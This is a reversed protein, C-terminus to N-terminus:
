QTYLWQMHYRLSETFISLLVKDTLLTITSRREVADDRWALHCHFSLILLSPTGLHPEALDSEPRWSQLVRGRKNTPLRDM